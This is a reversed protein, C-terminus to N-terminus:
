FRKATFYKDAVIREIGFHNHKISALEEISFYGWEDCYSDPVLGEIYGFAIKEDPDYETIYWTASGFQDFLKISVQKDAMAVNEQSYFPYNKTAKAVQTILTTM